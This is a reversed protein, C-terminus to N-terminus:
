EGPAAAAAAAAAAASAASAAAAAREADAPFATTKPVEPGETQYYIVSYREGTYPAVWHPFRGDM